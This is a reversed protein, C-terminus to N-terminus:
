WRSGVKKKRLICRISSTELVYVAHNTCSHQSAILPAAVRAPDYAITILVIALNESKSEGAITQGKTPLEIKVTYISRAKEDPRVETGEDDYYRNADELKQLLKFDTQQAETAIRQVIQSRVSTDLSQRFSGLGVPVLGLLAVFAFAVIGIALTIEVLSFATPSSLRPSKLTRPSLRVAFEFVLPRRDGDV